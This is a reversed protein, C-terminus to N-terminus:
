RNDPSRGISRGYTEAIAKFRWFGLLACLFIQRSWLQSLAFGRFAAPDGAILDM